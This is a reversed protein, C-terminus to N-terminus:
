HVDVAIEIHLREIVVNREELFGVFPELLCRGGLSVLGLISRLVVLVVFNIVLLVGLNSKCPSIVEITSTKTFLKIRSLTLSFFSVITIICPLLVLIRVLVQLLMM